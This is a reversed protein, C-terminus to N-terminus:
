PVRPLSEYGFNNRLNNILEYDDNLFFYVYLKNGDNFIIDVRTKKDENRCNWHVMTIKDVDFSVNNNGIFHPM